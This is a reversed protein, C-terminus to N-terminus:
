KLYQPFEKEVQALRIRLKEADDVLGASKVLNYHAEVINKIRAGYPFRIEDNGIQVFALRYTKEAREYYSRAHDIDNLSRYAHGLLLYVDGKEADSDHLISKSIELSRELLGIAEEPRRQWLLAIALSERVSSRELLHEKPLKEVLTIAARCSSEAKAWEQVRLFDRCRDHEAFYAQNIRTEEREKALIAAIEKKDTTAKVTVKQSYAVTLNSVIIFGLVLTTRLLKAM